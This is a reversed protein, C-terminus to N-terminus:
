RTNVGRFRGSKLASALADEAVDDMFETYCRGVDESSHSDSGGTYPLGLSMAANYAKENEEGNNHGNYAEVACIGHAQSLEAKFQGWGRFPHAVVAVVGKPALLKILESLPAFMGLDLFSNDSLGFLLM